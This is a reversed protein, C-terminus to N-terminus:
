SEMLIPAPPYLRVLNEQQFASVKPNSVNWNGKWGSDLHTSYLLVLARPWGTGWRLPLPGRQANELPLIFLHEGRSGNQPQTSKPFPNKWCSPVCGIDESCLPPIFIYWGVRLAQPMARFCLSVHLSAHSKRRINKPSWGFHVRSYQEGNDGNVPPVCCHMLCTTPTWFGQAAWRYLKYIITKITIPVLQYALSTWKTNIRDNRDWIVKRFVPM